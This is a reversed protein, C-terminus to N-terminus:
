DRAVQAENRLSPFTTARLVQKHREPRDAILNGHLDHAIKVFGRMVRPFAGSAKASTCRLQSTLSLFSCPSAWATLRAPGNM